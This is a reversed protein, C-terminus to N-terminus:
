NQRNRNVEDITKVIERLAELDFGTEADLRSPHVSFTVGGTERESESQVNRRRRNMAESLRARLREKLDPDQLNRLRPDNAIWAAALAEFDPEM